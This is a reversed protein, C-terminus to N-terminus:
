INEHGVIEKVAYLNKKDVKLTENAPNPHNNTRSDSTTEMKPRKEKAVSTLRNISVTNQTGDQDIKVYEPGAIIARYPGTHRLLIKWHGEYAM